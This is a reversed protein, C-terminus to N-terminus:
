RMKWGAAVEKKGVITVNKKVHVRYSRREFLTALKTVLCKFQELVPATEDAFKLQIM